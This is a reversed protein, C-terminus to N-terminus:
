AAGVPSSGPRILKVRAKWAARSEAVQAAREGGRPQGSGEGVQGGLEGSFVVEDGGPGPAGCGSGSFAAAGVAVGAALVGVSGDAADAVGDDQVWEFRGLEGGIGLLLSM